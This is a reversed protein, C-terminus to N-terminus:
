PNAGTANVAKQFLPMHEGETVGVSLAGLKEDSFRSLGSGDCTDAGLRAFHRFRRVENVRGVHVYKDMIKAARVIDAAANSVKWETSGGIFIAKILHWPIPLNELGDQAVLALPWTHIEDYWHSFAECTRRANGVIDPAAVFLCEAKHTEQRALLRRFAAGDFGSFGGNDMAFVGGWNRYNTLPTLLQGVVCPYHTTAQLRAPSADLLINM